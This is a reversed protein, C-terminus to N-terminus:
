RSLAQLRQKYASVAASIDAMNDHGFKNMYAEALVFAVDGEAVVAASPVYCVDSKNPSALAPSLTNVNISDCPKDSVTAPRVAVSIILPMGTTMGGEVGGHTNCARKFGDRASHTIADCAESGTMESIKFGQGFEVGCVGPLSFLAAALQSTIRDLGTAYGGVGPLIGQVVIRFVGGLTEGQEAAADIEKKMMRTTKECPCRVESMEIALPEYLVAQSMPDTERMKVTGIASVHSSVDVGLEALFERAIGSAAVRAVTERSTARESVDLADDLNNKLMGVLDAHGLVPVVTRNREDPRDGEPNILNRWTRWGPNDISLAVPTGLTKGFRVGSLIEVRDAIGASKIVRGYGSNRRALDADMDHSSIRLGAPVGEVVAYIAQGHAEGATVYRM